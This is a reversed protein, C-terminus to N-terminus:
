GGKSGEEDGRLIILLLAFFRLAFFRMYIDPFLFPLDYIDLSAELVVVIHESIPVVDRTHAMYENVPIRNVRYTPTRSDVCGSNMVPMSSTLRAFDFANPAMPINMAVKARETNPNILFLGFSFSSMSAM